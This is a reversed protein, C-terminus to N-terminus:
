TLEVIYFIRESEQEVDNGKLSSFTHLIRFGARKLMLEMEGVSYARQRHTEVGDTFEFRTTAIRKEQDYELVITFPDGGVEKLHTGHHHKLYMQETNADFIFLGREADLVSAVRQLVDQVDMSSLLYNISDFTCTVLDFKDTVKFETMNQVGFSVNSLDATKEKAIKIMEPSLDVGHVIHGAKALELVLKGTGCALDLVRAQPIGREVLYLTLFSVYLGAFNGWGEDYHQSLYQYNTLSM